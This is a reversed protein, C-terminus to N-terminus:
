SFRIIIMNYHLFFFLNVKYHVQYSFMFPIKEKGDCIKLINHSGDHNLLYKNRLNIYFIYNLILNPILLPYLLIVIIICFLYM